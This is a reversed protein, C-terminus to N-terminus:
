TRQILHYGQLRDISQVLEEKSVGLITSVKSISISGNRLKIIELLAVDTQNLNQEELYVVKEPPKSRNSEM